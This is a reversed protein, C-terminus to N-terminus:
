QQRKYVDLHTYSVAASIPQASFCPLFCVPLMRRPTPMARDRICMEAAAQHLSGLREVGYLLIQPGKGFFKLGNDGCIYLKWDCFMM